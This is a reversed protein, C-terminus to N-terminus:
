SFLLFLNETSITPTHNHFPQSFSPTGLEDYKKNFFSNNNLTNDLKSLLAARLSEVQPDTAHKVWLTKHDTHLKIIFKIPKAELITQYM